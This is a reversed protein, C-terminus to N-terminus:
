GTCILSTAIDNSSLVTNLPTVEGYLTAVLYGKHTSITLTLRREHLANHPLQLILAFQLKSMVHLYAIKGM